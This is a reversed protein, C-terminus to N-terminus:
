RQGVRVIRGVGLQGLQRDFAPVESDYFVAFRTKVGALRAALEGYVERQAATPPFDANGAVDGGGSVLEAQLWLLKLYLKLEGRFSKLDGEALTPQLLDDEIARARADM